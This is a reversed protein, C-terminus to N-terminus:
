DREEEIVMLVALVTFFISVLFAAVAQALPSLLAELFEEISM